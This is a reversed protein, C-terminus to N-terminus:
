PIRAGGTELILLVAPWGLLLQTALRRPTLM